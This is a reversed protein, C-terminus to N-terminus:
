FRGLSLYFQETYAICYSYVYCLILDLFHQVTLRAESVLFNAGVMANTWHM